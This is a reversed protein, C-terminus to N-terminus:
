QHPSKERTRFWEYLVLALRDLTAAGEKSQVPDANGIASFALRRGSPLDMYGSLSNVHEITGTKAHIQGEAPTGKLRDALTGDVGAVPLSDFFIGFHPSRAMHQLLKVVASPAVLTKRSLGSADTFYIEGSLIGIQGAFEQLVELGVTLSGYNKVEHALTRLLMEAHLNQSVKNLVKIEAGLPPSRYEALVVRSSPRSPPADGWSAAEFRSFHRVQVSGRASIGRSELARRFLEGILKPPDAIAVRDEDEAAGVPIQGWVDLVTSGSTREVFIRKERNAAVTELRSELQYYDPIPELWVRTAEGVASGARVHLGLANDNFALATIPAGYGWQLDEEAWGNSYPEFLFYTDDAIVDGRVERVGKAVLQGALEQLSADAPRQEQTTPQYPLIRSSLNPDGRGVLFLDRVRGESDPEADAEITTRFVFDPGLKELAVAATFLKMNSAPQFLHDPNLAYLIKGEPLRVVEIGWFGRYAETERLISEIFRHLKRPGTFARDKPFGTRPSAL